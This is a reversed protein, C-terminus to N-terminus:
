FEKYNNDTYFSTQPILMNQGAGNLYFIRLAKTGKLKMFEGCVHELKAKDEEYMKKVESKTKGWATHGRVILAIPKEVM